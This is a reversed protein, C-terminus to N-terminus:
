DAAGPQEWADLLERNVQDIRTVGMLAMAVEIEQRFTNLLRSLGAEGRAAMAWIWPRGIMVGRAGLAIAKVVDIGSRVGGDMFVELRDGAADVVAPLKSIASAVGDLQRGGHNSVVVGDAGTDAAACADEPELIGKILLKGPWIDRLWGIDQWTVSPDFQGDVWQKYANLDTPDPVLHELNGISLPKGMLAVDFLWRPRTLLQPIKALAMAVKDDGLMGNRTDRHRMGVAALDVTFVLTDCGAKRARELMSEVVGRDRLMYLQFWFPRRAARQVEEIPCVGVTSLTFPVNATEAARVAQVEGRRAMLGATGVPALVLPMAASSGLLEVSTDIDSVDRMVRQKLRLRGFDDINAAMTMEENCGGDVYDFLFRPLRKRALRRYDPSTVPILNFTAM